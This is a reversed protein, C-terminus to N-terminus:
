INDVCKHTTVNNIGNVVSRNINNRIRKFIVDVHLYKIHPAFSRCSSLTSLCYYDFRYFRYLSFV